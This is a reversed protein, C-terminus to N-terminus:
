GRDETMEETDTMASQVPAAPHRNFTATHARAVHQVDYRMVIVTQTKYQNCNQQVILMYCM